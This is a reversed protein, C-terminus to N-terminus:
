DVDMGTFDIFKFDGIGTLKTESPKRDVLEVIEEAGYKRMREVHEQDVEPLFNTETKIGEAEAYYRFINVARPVKDEEPIDIDTIGLSKLTLDVREGLNDSLLNTTEHILNTAGHSSIGIGEMEGAKQGGHKSSGETPQYTMENYPESLMGGRAHMKDRVEQHIKLMYSVGFAVRFPLFNGTAPDYMEATGDKEFCGEWERINEYRERCRHLYEVPIGHKNYKERIATFGSDTTIDYINAIDYMLEMLVEIDSRSAGNFSNTKVKVGSIMGIFGTHTEINQGGNMRSVVGLPNLAIRARRGNKFTLMKSDPCMLGTVGKNGHRGAMKDAEELRNYNIFKAVYEKSKGGKTSSSGSIDIKYLIGAINGSTWNQPKSIDSRTSSTKKIRTIVGKEPVYKFNRFGEVTYREKEENVVRKVAKSSVSIFKHATNVTPVIADEYNYGGWTAYVILENSGPSFYGDRSVATDMLIDGKYFRDGEKVKFNMMILCDNMIQTEKFAVKETRAPIDFRLKIANGSISEVVGDEKARIIPSTSIIQDAKVAQGVQVNSKTTLITQYEVRADYDVILINEAIEVVEGSSKAKVLFDTGYQFMHTYMDTFVIPSDSDQTYIAQSYQNIGFTVRAGDNCSAYPILTATPSMHQTSFCNVYHLNSSNTLEFKVKEKVDIPSPVRANIVEDIIYGDSDTRISLIDGIVYRQEEQVTLFEVENTLRTGRSDRVLKRYPTKMVGDEVRCGIALTNVLGIKHGAPTDYPCIRGYFGMALSRMEKPVASDDKVFTSLKNAQTLISITSIDNSIHILKKENIRQKWERYFSSFPNRDNIIGVMSDKIFKNIGPKYRDVYDYMVSRFANSFTENYMNVKKLLDLERNDVENFEPFTEVRATYSILALMDHITMHEPTVLGKFNYPDTQGYYYTYEDGTYGEPIDTLFDSLKATYNGVIEQEFTYKVITPNKMNSDAYCEVFSDGLDFLLHLMDDTIKEGDNLVWQVEIDQSLRSNGDFRLPDDEEGLIEAVLATMRTGKPLKNIVRGTFKKGVIRPEVKLYVENVLFKKIISLVQEDIFTGVPLYKDEYLHVPRSLTHGIARDLNLRRNVAERLRGMKFDDKELHDLFRSLDLEMEITEVKKLEDDELSSKIIPNSFYSELDIDIGTRLMMGKLVYWYAIKRKYLKMEIGTKANALLLSFSNNPFNVVVKKNKADYSVDELNALECWISKRGSDFNFVCYKDLDPIRTLEIKPLTVGKYNFAVEVSYYSNSNSIIEAFDSTDRKVLETTAVIDELGLEESMLECLKAVLELITKEKFKRYSERHPQLLDLEIDLEEVQKIELTNTKSDFKYM